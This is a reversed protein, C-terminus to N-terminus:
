LTERTNVGELTDLTEAKTKQTHRWVRSDADERSHSNEVEFILPGHTDAEEFDEEFSHPQDPNAKFIFPLIFAMNVSIDHPINYFQISMYEISAPESELSDLNVDSDGLTNM